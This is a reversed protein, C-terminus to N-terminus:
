WRRFYSRVQFAAMRGASTKLSIALEKNPILRKLIINISTGEIFLNAQLAAYGHGPGLIFLMPSQQKKILYNLHAYIFNIGPCTGWHGLLRPKIDAFTLPQELLRNNMLYIQAASLYNAARMYQKISEIADEM